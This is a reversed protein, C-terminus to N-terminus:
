FQTYIFPAHIQSGFIFISLLLLTCLAVRWPFRLQWLFLPDNSVAQPVDIILLLLIPVLIKIVWLSTIDRLPNSSVLRQFFILAGTLSEVRFFVWAASVAALTIVWGVVARLFLRRRSFNKPKMRARP